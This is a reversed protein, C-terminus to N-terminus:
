ISSVNATARLSPTPLVYPKMVRQWGSGEVEGGGGVLKGHPVVIVAPTIISDAAPSVIKASRSIKKLIWNAVQCLFIVSPMARAVPTSANSLWGDLSRSHVSCQRAMNLDSATSLKEVVSCATQAFTSQSCAAWAQKDTVPLAPRAPWERVGDRRQPTSSENYIPSSTLPCVAVTIWKISEGM